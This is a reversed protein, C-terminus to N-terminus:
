CPVIVVATVNDPGGASNAADILAACADDPVPHAGLIGALVGDDVVGHLGDSCLLIRDEPQLDVACVDPVVPPDMAVHRTIVNRAPHGDADGPEVQGTDILEQLLTHDQTLQQLQGDRYLYARSDGLHAFFARSGAVVTAVATSSSGAIRPDTEAYARLDTVLNVLADGLRGPLGPDSPEGSELRRRLYTPLLEVVVAAALEGNNSSAVGDAVIFLGQETDAGWRDQNRSRQRGVDSLCAYQV